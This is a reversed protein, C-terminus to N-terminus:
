LLAPVIHPPLLDESGDDRGDCGFYARKLADGLASLRHWIRNKPAPRPHDSEADTPVRESYVADMDVNELVYM